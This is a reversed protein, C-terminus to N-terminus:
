LTVTNGAVEDSWDLSDTVEFEIADTSVKLTFKYAASAALVVPTAFRKTVIYETDDGAIKYTVAIGKAEAPILMMYKNDANASDPLIYGTGTFATSGMLEYAAMEASEDGFTVTEKTKATGAVIALEDATLDVSGDAFFDGYLKVSSVTIASAGTNELVFAVRSLLHKFTFKVAGSAATKNLSALAAVLDVQATPTENVTFTFGTKESNRSVGNVTPYTFFDVENGNAPWYVPVNGYSWSPESYTLGFTHWADVTYDATEGTKHDFALVQFGDKRLDATEYALAKTAAKGFYTDFAIVQGVNPADIVESKSCSVVAALACISFFIKKM